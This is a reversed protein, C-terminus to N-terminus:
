IRPGNNAAIHQTPSASANAQPQAVHRRYTCKYAPKRIAPSHCGAHRDHSKAVATISGGAERRQTGYTDVASGDAQPRGLMQQLAHCLRRELPGPLNQIDAELDDISAPITRDMELLLKRVRKQDKPRKAGEERQRVVISVAENIAPLLDFIEKRLQLVALTREDGRLNEARLERAITIGAANTSSTASSATFISIRSSNAM